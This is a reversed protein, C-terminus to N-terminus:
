SLACGDAGRTVVVLHVGLRHLHASAEEVTAGPYVWALDEDSLKVLHARAAFGELQAHVQERPLGLGPRVNPDISIVIGPGAAALAALVQSAGPELVMALSGTHLVRVPGATFPGPEWDVEFLYGASGDAALQAEATSTARALP